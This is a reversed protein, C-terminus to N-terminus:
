RVWKMLFVLFASWAGLGGVLSIAIKWPEVAIDQTRKLIDLRKLDVDARIQEIRFKKDELEDKEEQTVM